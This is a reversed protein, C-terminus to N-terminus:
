APEGAGVPHMAPLEVRFEAGAGERNRGEVTGGHSRVVQRVMPLGLGTGRQKTTFDPEFIRDEDGVPLGPGRDLVRIRAGSATAELHLEVPAAEGVAASADQANALLNRAVRELAVPHGMVRVTEAPLHLRIGAGDPDLRRVLGELLEGLDVESPPGEPPRGFQAFTRALEDLRAIEETLVDGAEAIRPDDSASVTRAAMKMPTLPNKLEHAVRRAMESWSRTRARDVERRRADELEGGMRRLAGRLNGFERIEWRERRPDAPPLPRGAGLAETWRVLEEVPGSISRSARTAAWLALAAALLLLVGAAIPLFVLLREVVFTYLLSLRVSESLQEQHRLAAEHTAPDLAPDAELRALLERGSEAIEGWPGASGTVVVLERVALTGGLLLLGSPIVAALFLTVFLRKRLNRTRLM